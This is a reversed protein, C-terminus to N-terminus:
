MRVMAEPLGERGATALAPAKAWLTEWPWDIKWLMQLAQWMEGGDGKAPGASAAFLGASMLDAMLPRMGFMDMRLPMNLSACSASM